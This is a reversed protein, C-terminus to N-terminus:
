SDVFPEITVRVSDGVSAGAQKQVDEDILMWFKKSRPVICSGFKVGNIEASVTHGRRGRWLPQAPIEWKKAPDFPVEIAVGKHGALLDGTFQAKKM